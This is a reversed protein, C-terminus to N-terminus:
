RDHHIEASSTLEAYQERTLEVAVTHDGHPNRLVLVEEGQANMRVGDVWYGHFNHWGTPVNEPVNEGIATGVVIQEGSRAAEFVPDPDSPPFTEVERGTLRPGVEPSGHGEIGSYEGGMQIALAREVYAPWTAADPNERLTDRSASVVMGDQTPLEKPMTIPEPDGNEDYLTVTVTGNGNDQVHDAAWGPDNQMMMGLTALSVCDGYSGQNVDRWSADDPVVDGPPTTTGDPNVNYTGQASDGGGRQDPHLTPFMESIRQVDDPHADRLIQDLLARRSPDTNGGLGFWGSGGESLKTELAALQDDSLSNVWAAREQPTLEALRETLADLDRSNGGMDGFFDESLAEDLLGDLEEQLENDLPDPRPVAPPGSHPSPSGNGDTDSPDGLFGDTGGDSADDQQAAHDSLENALTRLRDTAQATLSVTITVDSQFANADPGVWSLALTQQEINAVLSAIQDAGARVATAQHSLQETDAGLFGTM